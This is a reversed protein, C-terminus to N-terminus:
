LIDDMHINGRADVFGLMPNRRCDPVGGTGRLAIGAAEGLQRCVEGPPAPQEGLGGAGGVGAESFIAHSRCVAPARFEATVWALDIMRATVYGGETGEGDNRTKGKVLFQINIYENYSYL